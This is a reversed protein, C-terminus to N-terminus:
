PVSPSVSMGFHFTYPSDYLSVSGLSVKTRARAISVARTDLSISGAATTAVEFTLLNRGIIRTNDVGPEANMAVVSYGVPRTLYPGIDAASMLSEIDAPNLPDTVAGFDIEKRIL